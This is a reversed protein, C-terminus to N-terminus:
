SVYAYSFLPVFLVAAGLLVSIWVLFLIVGHGAVLCLFFMGRDVRDIITMAFASFLFLFLSNVLYMKPVMEAGFHALLLAEATSDGLIATAFCLLLLLFLPVKYTALRPIRFTFPPM